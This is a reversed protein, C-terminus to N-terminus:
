WVILIELMDIDMNIFFEVTNVKYKTYSSLHEDYPFHAYFIGIRNSKIKCMKDFHNEGGIWVPWHVWESEQVIPVADTEQPTTHGPWPMSWGSGDLVMTLSLTLERQAKM